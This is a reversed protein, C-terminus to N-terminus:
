EEEQVQIDLMEDGNEDKFTSYIITGRNHLVIADIMGERYAKKDSFYMAIAGCVVWFMSVGVLLENMM